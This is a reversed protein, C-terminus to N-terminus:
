SRAAKGKAAKATSSAQKKAPAKKAAAAPKEETAKAGSKGRREDRDLQARKQELRATEESRKGQSYSLKTYLKRQKNSMLMKAMSRAEEEEQQAASAKPRKGATAPAADAAAKALKRARKSAAAHAAHLAALEDEGGAAEAELEAAAELGASTEDLPDALLAALAPRANEDVEADMAEEEEAEAEEESSEAAEEDAAAAEEADAGAIIAERPAYGGRAKIAADDVFPSLHPPLQAGPAYPGTPLITGANASDVVWQPQVRALKSAGSSAGAVPPRDVIMHTIREDSADFASGAGLVADWGVHSAPAGFSRLVFEVVGRPCERSIYFYYPSFLDASSSGASGDLAALSVLGASTGDKSPAETFEDGRVADDAAPAAAEGSEADDAEAPTDQQAIAKIAKKVERSSVKKGAAVSGADTSPGVPAQSQEVLRLAGLPGAGADDSAAELAPPYVLNLDTYLRFLVFGLLTQYLEIFTSMIRFDVDQPV